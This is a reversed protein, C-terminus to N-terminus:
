RHTTATWCHYLTALVDDQNHYSARVQGESYVIAFQPNKMNTHDYTMTASRATLRRSFNGVAGPRTFLQRFYTTNEPMMTHWERVSRGGASQVRRETFGRVQIAASLQTLGRGEGSVTFPAGPDGATDLKLGGASVLDHMGPGFHIGSTGSSASGRAAAWGQLTRYPKEASGDSESPSDSGRDLDIHVVSGGARPVSKAVLFASVAVLARM